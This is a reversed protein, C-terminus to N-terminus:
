ADGAAYIDPNSTQLYEDVQVFGREDIDVAGDLWGANPRIGAAILVTDAEYEAKDTIVKSVIGNEGAIEQVMEGSKFKMGHEAANAELGDTFEKDLNTPLINNLTDIVTTHIGAKTFAEAAEIGIYGGGIVVAQNARKM